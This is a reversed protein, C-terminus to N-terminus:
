SHTLAASVFSKRWTKRQCLFAIRDTSTLVYSGLSLSLPASKRHLTGNPLSLGICIVSAKAIATNPSNILEMLVSLMRCPTMEAKVADIGNVIHVLCVPILQSHSDWTWLVLAFLTRQHLTLRLIKLAALVVEPVDERKTLLTLHRVLGLKCFKPVIKAKPLM